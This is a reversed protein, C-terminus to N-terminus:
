WILGEEALFKPEPSFIYKQLSIFRCRLKWIAPIVVDVYVFNLKNNNNNDDDNDNDDDGVDGNNSFQVGLKINYAPMLILPKYFNIHSLFGVEARNQM